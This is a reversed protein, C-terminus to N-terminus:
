SFFVDGALVRRREGGPLELLLAGDGDLDIFTGALRGNEQRVMVPKGRGKARDLWATRVPGFGQEDWLQYFVALRECFVALVAGAEATVGGVSLATAPYLAPDPAALINVGVGLIIEGEGAAELLMGAIKSDDALVDNPWKCAFRRRSDFSGLADVLAVAAVFSLQAAEALPRGPRLLFSCHLNGRPSIWQRGRRGRGANQEAAWVVTGHAAGRQALLRLEDNTSGVSDLMILQFPAPLAPISRM